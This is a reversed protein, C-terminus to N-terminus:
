RQFINNRHYELYMHHQEQLGSIHTSESVGLIRADEPSLHPSMMITGDDQFSIFGADFLSDLNPVLLLGNFPDVCESNLECDRWPKIHSAILIDTKSCGTVCCRGSWFNILNQRFETQNVRARITAQREQKEKEDLQELRKGEFIYSRVEPYHSIIWAFSHADLVSIHEAHRSYLDALERLAANFAMYNDYTCSAFCETRIGLDRFADAFLRPKCPFYHDPDKLFFLYSITDYKRGFFAAFAELSSRDDTENKYFRYLLEGGEQPSSQLKNRFSVKQNVNVMNNEQISMARIAMDAVAGSDIAKTNWPKAFLKDTGRVFTSMKYGENGWLYGNTFSPKMGHQEPQQSVFELFLDIIHEIHAIDQIYKYAM